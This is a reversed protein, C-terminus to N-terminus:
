SGICCKAEFLLHDLHDQGVGCEHRFHNTIQSVDMGLELFGIYYNKIKDDIKVPYPVGRPRRFRHVWRLFPLCLTTGGHKKFKQHIYWEEGGFGRFHENFGPWADKRCSFLGMGQMPIEFPKGNPDKGRTDSSWVGYMETRWRPELHTWVDPHNPDESLLPGQLLDSTNENCQYYMLLKTLAGSEILVHSDTCLVYPTEAYEFVLGKVTTAHYESFPIYTAGIQAAYEKTQQGHRGNPNNDVILFKVYPLIERHYMLVSQTSFFVGDFDDYCAMGITLLGKEAFPNNNTKCCPSQKGCCKV